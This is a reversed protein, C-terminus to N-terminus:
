IGIAYFGFPQGVGPPLLSVIDGPLDYSHALIATAHHTSVESLNLRAAQSRFAAALRRSMHRLAQPEHQYGHTAM